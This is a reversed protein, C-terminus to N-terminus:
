SSISAHNQENFHNMKTTRITNTWNKIISRGEPTLISEPHFQVGYIPLSNHRISMIEGSQLKSTCVLSAPLPEALMWSHYRGVAFSPTLGKFLNDTEVQFNISSKGHLIESTQILTAGFYEGIAQHGLCVGLFPKKQHFRDIVEMLLGAERPIGPGPSLVIGDAQELADERLQDNRMVTLTIDEEESLYRVLNYVFSDYNDIVALKM